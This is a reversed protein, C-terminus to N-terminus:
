VERSAKVGTALTVDCAVVILFFFGGSQLLGSFQVFFRNFIVKVQFPANNLSYFRPRMQSHIQIIVYKICKIDNKM